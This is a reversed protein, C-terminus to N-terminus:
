GALEKLKKELEKVRAKLEENERLALVIEDMTEDIYEDFIAKMDAVFIDKVEARFKEFKDM